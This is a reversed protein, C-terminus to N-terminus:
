LVKVKEGQSGLWMDIGHGYSEATIIYKDGEKSVVEATPLRDLIAELSPGTFEFKVRKLEGAYMFQVRKRFEGEQFKNAYPIIFKENIKEIKQIRDIRYVIPIDKDSETIYAILYFYFESFMISVPKIDRITEKKDQRIYHIVIREKNTIIESLEWIKSLLKKGHKLPVYNLKENGIINEIVNRNEPYSQELLKEILSDLEEKCFARSELLIKCLAMIEENSLWNRQYKVLRYGRKDKDYIISSEDLKYHIEQLYVRLDEIDRQITKESVKYHNCLDSKNLIEGKNFREYIDLLRFGKNEKYDGM